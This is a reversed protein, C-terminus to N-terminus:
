ASVQLQVRLQLLCIFKPSGFFCRLFYSVGRNAHRLSMRCSSSLSRPWCPKLFLCSSQRWLVMNDLTLPIARESMPLVGSSRSFISFSSRVRRFFSPKRWSVATRSLTNSKVM